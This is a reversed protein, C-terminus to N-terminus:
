FLIFTDRSVFSTYGKKDSAVASQEPDVINQVLPSFRTPNLHNLGKKKEPPLM